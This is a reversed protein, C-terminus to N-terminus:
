NSKFNDGVVPYLQDNAPPAPTPIGTIETTAYIEIGKDSDYIILFDKYGSTKPKAGTTGGLIEKIKTQFVSSGTYCDSLRTSIANANEETLAINAATAITQAVQIDASKRSKGIYKMLQPALAGTLIAMIAIVIIIEVLSFGKNNLKKVKVDEKKM